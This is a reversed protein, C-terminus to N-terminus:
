RTPGTPLDGVYYNGNEDTTSIAIADRTRQRRHVRQRGRYGRRRDPAGDGDVDLFITDGIAGLIPAQNLPTYGFDLTLDVVPNPDVGSPDLAVAGAQDLVADPDGTQGLESLVHETDNVCVVYNGDPVGEFLYNGLGDTIDTAVIPEDDATDPLGDDGLPEFVGDGDLDLALKVTIGPIGPEGVDQVGNANEDLWVRDGVTNDQPPPRSTASTPTSSSMVPVSFSRTPPRTTM